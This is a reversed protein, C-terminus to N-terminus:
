EHKPLHKDLGRLKISSPNLSFFGSQKLVGIRTGTNNIVAITHKRLAPRRIFYMQWGFKKLHIYTDMQDANLYMMYNYPLAPKRKRRREILKM